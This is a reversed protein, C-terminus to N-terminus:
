HVVYVTQTFVSFLQRRILEVNTDNSRLLDAFAAEQRPPLSTVFIHFITYVHSEGGVYRERVNVFM